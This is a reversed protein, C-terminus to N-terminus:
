KFSGVFSQRARNTENKNGPLDVAIETRWLTDGPTMVHTFTVRALAIAGPLGNTFDKGTIERSPRFLYPNGYANSVVVNTYAIYTVSNADSSGTSINKYNTMGVDGAADANTGIQLLRGVPGRASTTGSQVDNLDELITRALLAGQTEEYSERSTALGLPFLGMLSTFAVAAVGMAIVVETLSFGCSM